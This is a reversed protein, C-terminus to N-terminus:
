LQSEKKELGVRAGLISAACQRSSLGEVCSSVFLRLYMVPYLCLLKNIYALFKRCGEALDLCM